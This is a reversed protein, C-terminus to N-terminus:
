DDLSNSWKRLLCDLQFREQESLGSILDHQNKVHDNIASDIVEHGETTLGVVFGRGDEPNKQRKILGASELKDLRNTMTGSTVMTWFILDSPSLAYPPGSRKLTALVDFSSPTLGHKKHVHEIKESLQDSLRRIRGFVGMPAVDLSPKESHWQELIRDVHDM